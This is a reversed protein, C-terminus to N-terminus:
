DSRRVSARAAHREFASHHQPAQVMLEQRIGALRHGSSGHGEFSATGSAARHCGQHESLRLPLSEGHGAAAGSSMPKAAQAGGRGRGGRGRRRRRRPDIGSEQRPTRAPIISEGATDNRDPQVDSQVDPASRAEIEPEPAEPEDLIRPSAPAAADPTDYYAPQLPAQAPGSKRPKRTRKPASLVIACGSACTQNTVCSCLAPLRHPKFRVLAALRNIVQDHPDPASARRVCGAANCNSLFESGGADAFM